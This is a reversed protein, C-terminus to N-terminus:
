KEWFTVATEGWDKYSGRPNVYHCWQYNTLSDFGLYRITNDQTQTRDDPIMGLSEPIGGWPIAQLHLGPFGAKRVNERLSDLAAGRSGTSKSSRSQM